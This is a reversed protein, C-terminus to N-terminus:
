VISINELEGQQDLGYFSREEAIGIRRYMPTDGTGVPVLVLSLVRQESGVQCVRLLTIETDDPICSSQDSQDSFDYDAQFFEVSGGVAQSEVLFDNSHVDAEAQHKRYSLRGEALPGRLHLGGHQIQGTPDEKSVLDVRAIPNEVFIESRFSTVFEYRTVQDSLRHTWAYDIRGDVSAWSWSPARWPSLRRTVIATRQKAWLLGHVLLDKHAEQSGHWLGAYYLCGSGFKSAFQMALSSIAPFKDEARTLQLASYEEVARFWAHKLFQYNNLEKLSENYSIKPDTLDTKMYGCQCMTKERCEWQVERKTFHLVRRSLIREQFIWGRRLAPLDNDVNVNNWLAQLGHSMTARAAIKGTAHGKLEICASDLQEHGFLGSNCDESGTAAITLAAGGYYIGMKPAEHRWDNIDDQIICLSDIWIYEYGLALIFTIVDQFTLPLTDWPIGRLQKDYNATLTISKPKIEGWRYSLCIWILPHNTADGTTGSVAQKFTEVLEVHHAHLRGLRLLRTPYAQNNSGPPAECHSHLYDCDRLWTKAVILAAESSTELEGRVSLESM